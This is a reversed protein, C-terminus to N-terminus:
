LLEKDKTSNELVKAALFQTPNDDCDNINWRYLKYYLEYGGVDYLEKRSIDYHTSHLIFTQVTVVSIDDRLPFSAKEMTAIM